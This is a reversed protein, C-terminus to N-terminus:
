GRDRDRMVERFSNFNIRTDKIYRKKNVDYDLRYVSDQIDHDRCKNIYIFASDRVMGLDSTSRFRYFTYFYDSTNALIASGRVDDPLMLGKTTENVGKKTHCVMIIAIKHKEALSRLGALLPMVNNFNFEYFQSTTLNDIILIKAESWVIKADLLHCFTNIDAPGMEKLFEREHTVILKPSLYEADPEKEFLRLEIRDISEESLYLLMKTKKGLELILSQILTSKGRGTSGMLTHFCGPRFGFHDDIFSMNTAPYVFELNAQMRVDLEEKAFGLLKSIGPDKEDWGM